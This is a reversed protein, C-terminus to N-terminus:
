FLFELQEVGCDKPMHHKMVQFGDEDSKFVDKNYTQGPKIEGFCTCCKHSKKAKPTAHRLTVIVPGEYEEREIYPNM